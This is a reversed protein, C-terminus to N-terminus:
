GPKFRSLSTSECHHSSWKVGFYSCPLVAFLRKSSMVRNRDSWSLKNLAREVRVPVLYVQETCDSNTCVLLIEGTLEVLESAISISCSSCFIFFARDFYGSFDCEQLQAFKETQSLRNCYRWAIQFWCSWFRFFWVFRCAQFIQHIAFLSDSGWKMAGKPCTSRVFPLVELSDCCFIERIDSLRSSSGGRVAPFPAFSAACGCRSSLM